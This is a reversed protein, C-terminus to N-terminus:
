GENEELPLDKQKLLVNLTEEHDKEMSQIEFFQLHRSKPFTIAGDIYMKIPIRTVTKEDHLEIHKFKIAGVTFLKGNWLVRQNYGIDSWRARIYYSADQVLSKISSLVFATVVLTVFSLWM